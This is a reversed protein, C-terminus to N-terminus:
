ITPGPAPTPAKSINCTEQKQRFDSSSQTM